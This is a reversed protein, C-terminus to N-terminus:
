TLKISKKSNPNKIKLGNKKNKLFIYKTKKLVENEKVENERVDDVAKNLYKIIHFNDHVIDANPLFEEACSIYAKWMDMTLWNINNLQTSTLIKQSLEQTDELKRLAFM